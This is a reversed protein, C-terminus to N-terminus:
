ANANPQDARQAETKITEDKRQQAAQQEAKQAASEMMAKVKQRNRYILIGVGAGLVFPMISSKPTQLKTVIKAMAHIDASMANSKENLATFLEEMAITYEGIAAFNQDLLEKTFEGNGIRNYTISPM